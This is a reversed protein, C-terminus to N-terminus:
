SQFVLSELIGTILIEQKELQKVRFNKGKLHLQFSDMQLVIKEEELTLVDIYHFVHVHNDYIDIYYNQNVLFERVRNTLHM